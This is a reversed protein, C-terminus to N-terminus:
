KKVPSGPTPLAKLDGNLNDPVDRFDIKVVESILESGDQQHMVTRLPFRGTLPSLSEEVWFGQGEARLVYVDFGLFKDIRVFQSHHRLFSHSHFLQHLKEPASPNYPKADDSPGVPQREASGSPKIYVGENTGAFVPSSTGPAGAADYAFAADKDLGHMVIRFEGNAKVYRTRWSNITKKGEPTTMAVYYVTIYPKSPEVDNAPTQRAPSPSVVGALFVVLCVTRLMTKM